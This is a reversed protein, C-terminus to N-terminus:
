KMTRSAQVQLNNTEIHRKHLRGEYFLFTTWHPEIERIEIEEPVDDFGPAYGM